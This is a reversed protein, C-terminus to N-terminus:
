EELKRAMLVGKIEEYEYEDDQHPGPCGCEAYHVECVPCVPEECMECASCDHAFTVKRWEGM